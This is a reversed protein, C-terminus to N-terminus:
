KICLVFFNGTEIGSCIRVFDFGACDYITNQFIFFLPEPNGCGYPQFDKITVFDSRRWENVQDNPTFEGIEAIGCCNNLTLPQDSDYYAKM